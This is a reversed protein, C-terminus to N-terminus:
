TVQHFWTVLGPRLGSTPEMCESLRWVGYCSVWFVPAQRYTGVPDRLGTCWVPRGQTPGQSFGKGTSCTASPQFPAQCSWVSLTELQIQIDSPVKGLPIAVHSLGTFMAHPYRDDEAFALLGWALCKVRVPTLVHGCELHSWTGSPSSQVSLYKPAPGRHGLSTAASALWSGTPGM